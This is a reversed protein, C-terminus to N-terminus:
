GIALRLGLNLIPWYQLLPGADDELNTEEARLNGEFAPDGILTGGEATLTFAPQGLFAVGLDLFLGSGPNDHRGFGLLLYPAKRRADLTATLSGVEAPTYLDDGIYTDNALRATLTPDDPKYLVGAGVRVPGALYLDLGLTYWMDPLNLTYTIQDIDTEPEWPMLGIGGRVVFNGTLGVAGEAGIGLTGARVGVGIGQALLHGPTLLASVAVIILVRDRMLEGIEHGQM